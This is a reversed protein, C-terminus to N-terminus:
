DSGREPGQDTWSPPLGLSTGLTNGLGPNRGFAACVNQPAGGFYEGVSQQSPMMPMANAIPDKGTVLLKAWDAAFETALTHADGEAAVRAKTTIADAGRAWMLAAIQGGQLTVAEAEVALAGLGLPLRPLPLPVGTVASVVSGGINAAASVGAATTDTATMGTIVVRVTLDAQKPVVQYRRTLERCLARDVANTVLKVQEATFEARATEAVRTPVIAVSRAAALARDDIYQRSKTLAGHSPTLRQYSTLTGGEELAVSACGSLSVALLVAPFPYIRIALRDKHIM